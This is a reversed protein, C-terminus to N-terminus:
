ISLVKPAMSMWQGQSGKLSSAILGQALCDAQLVYKWQKQCAPELTQAPTAMDDKECLRGQKLGPPFLHLYLTVFFLDKTQQIQLSQRGSTLIEYLNGKRYDRSNEVSVHRPKLKPLDSLIPLRTVGPNRIEGPLLQECMGKCPDPGDRKGTYTVSAELERYCVGNSPKQALRHHNLHQHPLEGNRSM